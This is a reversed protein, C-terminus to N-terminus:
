TLYLPFGGPWIPCHESFWGPVKPHDVLDDDDEDHDAASKLPYNVTKKEM